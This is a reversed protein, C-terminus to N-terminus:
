MILVESNQFLFGLQIMRKCLVKIQTLFASIFQVSFLVLIPICVDANVPTQLNM